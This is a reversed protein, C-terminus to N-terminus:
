LRKQNFQIDYLKRYVGNLGLLYQHSGREAIRGEDFVLIEDCDIITALRHAVLIATRDTLSDSIAQQVIKESESDLSSTAEDFILIEPKRVLARAIAIRQREGGSLIVGRDGILTEFGQPLKRIFNYANATKAADIMDQDTAGSFGYLINNAVTDNFLMTEQSVIGFLSRYQVLNLDSINKGDLSIAGTSPDYFRIILDLMTSKGSGSPGVFAIKKSKRLKFNIDKLVNKDNEYGFSLNEVSIENEYKKVPTKGSNVSPERDMIRFIREAAVFGLQFKSINNVTASIPSMIAFLTFLFLMLDDAKMAGSFVEIGGFLLVFSLAVIAFVENVSPVMAMVKKHKVKSRLFRRTDSEFKGNATKEANYAKVVRIGSLTEQLTSTYDAMANQMRGAYRRLFRMAVRILVLSIISTSFAILSLKASTTVLLVLLIIAQTAERLIITFSMITSQNLATVDNTINSILAGQKTKSFYDVSLSTFKGFLQDRISKVIGEELYGSAVSGAYKFINKFIFISIILVSLKVLTAVKDGPVLVIESIFRFFDDKAKEFFGISDTPFEAQVGGEFLIQLIPKIITVSLATFFSFVVNLFIALILLGVFPKVFGAIRLLLESSKYEKQNEAM